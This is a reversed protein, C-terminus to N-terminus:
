IINYSRRRRNKHLLFPLFSFFREIVSIMVFSYVMTFISSADNTTSKFMLLTMLQQKLQRFSNDETSIPLINKNM